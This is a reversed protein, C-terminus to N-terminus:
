ASIATSITDDIRPEDSILLIDKPDIRRISKKGTEDEIDIGRTWRGHSVLVYQGEQVDKQNPGIAYVKGWRPRIGDARGDDGLLIVGSSLTRENFSMDSVLVWDNLARIQNRSLDHPSYAPKNM